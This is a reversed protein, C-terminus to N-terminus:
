MVEKALNPGTLVGAPHSSGAVDVIVETMRKLSGQEVGKSLSIVPTSPRIFPLAQTLVDRFGHSPVGMVIVDADRVAQELSPTAELSKPLMVGPLYRRSQHDTGIEDALEKRRAWLVTECNRCTMAAVATGWSGAGIVAVRM